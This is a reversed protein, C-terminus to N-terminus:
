ITPTPVSTPQTDVSAVANLLGRTYDTAPRSYVETTPGYEVLQGRRMVAVYDSIEHIVALDHSIFIASFGLQQHFHGFLEIIEEQVSVDLASTPEDAIVLQPSLALARAIAVRQRQGGSLEDPFRQAFGSPLAVADLLDAVRARRTAPSGIKHVDLPERISDGVTRRPNLSASPDQPILAFDRRIRRLERHSLKTSDQGRIRLAGQTPSLLGAAMRGLTSKGSGSEGVLGLIEGEGVTLSVNDVATSTSNAATAPYTVTVADFELVPKRTPSDRSLAAQPETHISPVANLLQRTYPHRPSSFINGCTGAEVVEGHRLVTVRDAYQAVIGMNHTILLVGMGRRRAIRRILSLIEQQVTVDLATTPEDAILLDPDNALSLAIAVRQRQGGSLQHAFRESTQAPSPIEVQALLELIRERVDGDPAKRHARIAEGIQWGIRRVPNLASQPDQFILAASFGRVQNLEKETANLLERGDLRISGTASAGRPLLGLVARATMSKGSGSEGVLAHIEGRDVTLDVRKVAPRPQTFSIRLDEISLLQTTM